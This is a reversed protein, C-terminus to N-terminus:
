PAPQLKAKAMLAYPSDPYYRWVTLYSEVAKSPQNSLEYALGQLYYWYPFNLLWFSKKDEWEYAQILDEIQAQELSTLAAEPDKEVFISKEAQVTNNHFINGLYDSYGALRESSSGDESVLTFLEVTSGFTASLITTERITLFEFQPTQGIDGYGDHFLWQYGQSKSVWLYLYAINNEPWELVSWYDLWQDHNIDLEGYRAFEINNHALFEFLTQSQEQPNFLEVLDFVDFIKGCPPAAVCADLFDTDQQYEKLFQSAPEIWGSSSIAPSAVIIEMQQRAAELEGHYAFHIGVSFRFGDADDPQQEEVDDLVGSSKFSYPWAELWPDLNGAMETEGDRLFYMLRHFFSEICDTNEGAEILQQPTPYTRNVLVFVGNQLRHEEQYTAKYSCVMRDIGFSFSIGAGKGEDPLITWTRGGFFGHLSAFELKKPPIQSIDFVEFSTIESDGSGSWSSHETIIEVLSDGTLDEVTFRIGNDAYFGVNGYDSELPYIAYTSSERVVWLYVGTGRDDNAVEILYGKPRDNSLGSVPYVTLLMRPEHEKFWTELATIDTGQENLVKTILEGYAKSVDQGGMQALNYAMEWQWDFASEADPFRLLAEEQAFRAYDFAAYYGFDHYGRDIFGLKNPYEELDSILLNAQEPSWTTLTYVQAPILTPIFPTNTYPIPWEETPTLTPISTPNITLTTATTPHPTASPSPIIAITRSPSATIELRPSVTPSPYVPKEPKCAALLAGLISLFCLRLVIKM